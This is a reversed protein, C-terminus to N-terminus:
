SRFSYIVASAEASTTPQVFPIEYVGMLIETSNSKRGNAQEQLFVLLEDFTPQRGKEGYVAERWNQTARREAHHSAMAVNHLIYCESPIEERWLEPPIQGKVLSHITTFIANTHGFDGFNRTEM